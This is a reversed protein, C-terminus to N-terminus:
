EDASLKVTTNEPFAKKASDIFYFKRIDYSTPYKGHEFGWSNIEDLHAAGEESLGYKISYQAWNAKFDEAAIGFKEEIKKASEDLNDNIYNTSEDLATLYDALLDTNAKAFDETTILYASVNIGIDEAAVAKVWGEDEFKRVASGTVIAASAEGNHAVAIQTSISDTNVNNQKEPDLGLYTQAQWNFYESVTGINTIFGESGDLSALDDKYKPAVYLRGSYSITSSLDSFVVLNTNELTNGFRNVAAFDALLGTDATGAAIADITNIGVAYESTELQIGYKEFIGQQTGIFDAYQDAQGTMNAVRLVRLEKGDESKVTAAAKGSDSKGCATLASFGLAAAAFVSILKNIKM